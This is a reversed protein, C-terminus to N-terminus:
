QHHHVRQVILVAALASTAILAVGTCHKQKQVATGTGTDLLMM